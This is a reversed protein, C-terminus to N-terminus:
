SMNISFVIFLMSTAKFASGAGVWGLRQTDDSQVTNTWGWHYCVTDTTAHWLALTVRTLLLMYVLPTQGCNWEEISLRDCAANVSDSILASWTVKFWMVLSSCNLFVFPNLFVFVCM